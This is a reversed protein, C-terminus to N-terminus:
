ATLRTGKSPPILAEHFPISAIQIGKSYEEVFIEGSKYVALGTGNRLDDVFEGVFRIGNSTAMTGLGNRLGNRWQGEYKEGNDAKMYVGWGTRVNFVWDGSYVDGNTYLYTGKGHRWGYSMAGHYRDDSYLADDESQTEAYSSAQGGM